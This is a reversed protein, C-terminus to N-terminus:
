GQSTPLALEYGTRPTEYGRRQWGERCAHFLPPIHHSAFFAEYWASSGGRYEKYLLFWEKNICM